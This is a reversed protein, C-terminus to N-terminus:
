PCLRLAPDLSVMQEATLKTMERSQSWNALFARRIVPTLYQANLANFRGNLNSAHFGFRKGRMLCAKPLSTLMTCASNCEGLRVVRGSAKLEAHLAAYEYPNGGVDNVITVPGLGAPVPPTTNVSCASLFMLALLAHRVGCDRECLRGQARM